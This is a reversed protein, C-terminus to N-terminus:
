GHADSHGAISWYVGGAVFGAMALATLAAGPLGGGPWAAALMATLAGTAGAYFVLSRTRFVEGLLVGAIAAALFVVSGGHVTYIAKEATYWLRNLDGGPGAAEFAEFHQWIKVATFALLALWGLVGSIVIALVVRLIHYLGM